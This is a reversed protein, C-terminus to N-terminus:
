KKAEVQVLKHNLLLVVDYRVTVTKQYKTISFLCVFHLKDFEFSVECPLISTYAEFLIQLNVSVLNKLSCSLIAGCVHFGFSPRFIIGYWFLWQCYRPVRHAPCFFALSVADFAKCLEFSLQNESAVCQPQLCICTVLSSLLKRSPQRPLNEFSNVNTHVSNRSKPKQADLQDVTNLNSTM